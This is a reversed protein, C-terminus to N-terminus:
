AQFKQQAPSFFIRFIVAKRNEIAERRRKFIHQKEGTFAKETECILEREM